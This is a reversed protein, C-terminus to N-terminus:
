VSISGSFCGQSLIPFMFPLIKIFITNKKLLGEMFLLVCWFNQKEQLLGVEVAVLINLHGFPPTSEYCYFKKFGAILWFWFGLERCKM